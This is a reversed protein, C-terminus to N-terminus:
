IIGNIKEKIDQLAKISLLTKELEKDITTSTYIKGDSFDIYPISDTNSDKIGLTGVYRLGQENQLKKYKEEKQEQVAKKQNELIERHFKDVFYSIDNNIEDWTVTLPIEMNERNERSFWATCGDSFVELSKFKIGNGSWRTIKNIEIMKEKVMSYQNKFLNVMIEDM